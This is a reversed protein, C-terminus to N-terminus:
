SYSPKPKSLIEEANIASFIDGAPPKEIVCPAWTPIPENGITNNPLWSCFVFYKGFNAEPSNIAAYAYGSGPEPESANPALVVALNFSAPM